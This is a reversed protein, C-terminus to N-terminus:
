IAWAADWRQIEPNMVEMMLRRWESSKDTARFHEDIIERIKLYKANDSALV